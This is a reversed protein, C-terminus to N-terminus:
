PARRLRGGYALFEAFREVEMRMCPSFRLLQEHAEIRHAAEDCAQRSVLVFEGDEDAQRYARLAACLDNGTPAPHCGTYENGLARAVRRYVAEDRSGKAAEGFYPVNDECWQFLEGLVTELAECREGILRNSENAKRTCEDLEWQKHGLDGEVSALAAATRYLEVELHTAGCADCRMDAEDGDRCPQGSVSEHKCTARDM